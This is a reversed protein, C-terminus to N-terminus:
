EAQEYEESAWYIHAMPIKLKRGSSCWYLFYFAGDNCIGTDDVGDYVLFESEGIICIRVCKKNNKNAM